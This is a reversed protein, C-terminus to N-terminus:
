AYGKNNHIEGHSPSSTPKYYILMVAHAYDVCSDNGLQLWSFDVVMLEARPQQNVVPDTCGTQQTKTIAQWRTEADPGTSIRTAPSSFGPQAAYCYM